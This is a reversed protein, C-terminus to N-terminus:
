SWIIGKELKLCQPQRKSNQFEVLGAPHRMYIDIDLSRYLYATVVDMLRTELKKDVAFNLLYKFM